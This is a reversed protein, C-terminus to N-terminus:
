RRIGVNCHFMSGVHGPDFHLTHYLHSVHICSVALNRPLELHLPLFIFYPGPWFFRQIEGAVTSRGQFKVEQFVMHM